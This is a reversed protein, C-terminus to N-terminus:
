RREDTIEKKMITYSYLMVIMIPITYRVSSGVNVISLPVGYIILASFWLYGYVFRIKCFKYILLIKAIGVTTM